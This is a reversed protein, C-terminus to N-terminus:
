RFWSCQESLISVEEKTKTGMKIPRKKLYIDLQFQKM